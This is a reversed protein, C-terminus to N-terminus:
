FSRFIRLYERCLCNCSCQKLTASRKSNLINGDYLIFNNSLLCILLCIVFSLCFSLFTLYFQVPPNVNVKNFSFSQCFHKGTFVQTKSFKEPVSWTVIVLHCLDSHTYLSGKSLDPLLQLDILFTQWYWSFCKSFLFQTFLAPIRVKRTQIKEYKFQIRLIVGYIETNLGFVPFYPATFFEM